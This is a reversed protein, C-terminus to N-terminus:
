AVQPTAAVAGQPRIQLRTAAADGLFPSLFTSLRDFCDSPLLVQITGAFGGGHVRCAAEHGNRLGQETFFRETLALAVSVAQERSTSRPAVNQLFMASSRGSEAMLSIYDGFRSERLAAAMGDVRRNEQYFHIARTVARDGCSSRLEGLNAYFESESVDILVKGGLEAAVLNMEKPVSGYEDALDAHSGGSDVVCLDLGGSAFTTTVREVIPHAEDAFDIAVTGGSACVLQDMLGSPKGFFENEAFKGATAIETPAIENNNFAANFLAGMLVEVSASSSLGSGALVQSRMAIDLGGTKRGNDYLARAVGRVLASTSVRESEQVDLDELSIDVGPFGESVIRIRRDTRAAAAAITDLQVAGALVKGHNHDTHNGALETRGPSSALWTTADAAAGLDDILTQLLM